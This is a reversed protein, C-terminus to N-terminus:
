PHGVQSVKVKGMREAIESALLTSFIEAGRANLHMNDHYLHAKGSFLEPHTRESLDLFELGAYSTALRSMRASWAGRVPDATFVPAAILFLRTGNKRCYQTLEKLYELKLDWDPFEGTERGTVALRPDSSVDLAGRAPTYGDFASDPREVLNKIIPLVKGNFRYSYSLYKLRAYHSRMLLIRQVTESKDFYASFVGTRQIEEESRALSRPDVNLIIAAPPHHSRTWLDFLMIAYLFDQGAAGANFASASLRARLISPSVHAAARSSGLVLIDPSQKLALNIFGGLEGSTTQRYLGDLATGLAQDLGAIFVLFLVLARV